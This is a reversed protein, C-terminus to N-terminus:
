TMKIRGTLRPRKSVIVSTKLTKAARVEAKEEGGTSKYEREKHGKAKRCGKLGLEDLKCSSGAPLSIFIQDSELHPHM